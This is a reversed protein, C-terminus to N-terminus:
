LTKAEYSAVHVCSTVLTSVYLLHHKSLTDPLQCKIQWWLCEINQIHPGTEPDVFNLSHNVTLHEFDEENLCDYSKWCDSIITTGHAIQEKILPVLTRGTCCIGGFVWQGEIHHAKHSKSKGFKSEDKEVVKGIGGMQPGSEDCVVQYCLERCYNKYDSVTKISRALLHTGDESIDESTKRVTDAYSLQHVFKHM